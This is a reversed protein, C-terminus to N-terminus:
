GLSADLYQHLKSFDIAGRTQSVVSGKKDILFTTPVVQTGNFVRALGGNPDLVVPFPLSRRSAFNRVQEQSDYAMAVAILEFGRAQHQRYIQILDPMEGMCIPCSTAWFLVMVVKGRQDQLRIQRGDLTTFTVAPAALVTARQTVSYVVVAAGLVAIVAVAIRLKRSFAM